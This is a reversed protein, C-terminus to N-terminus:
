CGQRCARGDRLESIESEGLVLPQEGIRGVEGASLTERDADPIELRAVLEAVRDLARVVADRERGVASRDKECAGVLRHARVLYPTM